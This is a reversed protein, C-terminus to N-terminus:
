VNKELWVEWYGDRYRTKLDNFHFKLLDLIQYVYYCYDVQGARINRLVDNIYSSYHQWSTCGYYTGNSESNWTGSEKSYKNSLIRCKGDKYPTVFLKRIEFEEQWKKDTLASSPRGDTNSVIRKKRLQELTMKKYEELEKQKKIRNQLVLPLNDALTQNSIRKKNPEYTNFDEISIEGGYQASDPTYTGTKNFTGKM